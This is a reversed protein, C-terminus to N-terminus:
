SDAIKIQVTQIGGAGSQRFLLQSSENIIDKVCSVIAMRGYKNKEVELAAKSVTSGSM